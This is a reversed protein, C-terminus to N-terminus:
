SGRGARAARAADPSLKQINSVMCRNTGMGSADPVLLEAASGGCIWPGGGTSRLGIQLSWDVDPCPGMLDLTYVDNVGVFVNVTDDDVASFGSVNGNFFCQGGPAAATPASGPTQACAALVAALAGAGAASAIGTFRMESEGFSDLTECTYGFGAETALGPSM